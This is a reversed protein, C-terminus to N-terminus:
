AGLRAALSGRAHPSGRARLRTLVQEFELGHIRLEAAIVPEFQGRLLASPDSRPRPEAQAIAPEPMLGIYVAGIDSFGITDLNCPLAIPARSLKDDGDLLVQAVQGLRTVLADGTLEHMAREVVERLSDEARVVQWLRWAREGDDALVVCRRPSIAGAISAHLRAWQILTARGQDLTAFVADRSSVVRWGSGLGAAWDGNSLRRPALEIPELLPLEEPERFDAPGPTRPERSV